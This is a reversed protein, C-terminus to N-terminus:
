ARTTSSNRPRTSAPRQRAPPATVPAGVDRARGDPGATPRHHDRLVRMAGALAALREPGLPELVYRRLGEAHLALAADAVRRGEDTLAAFVVRRDTPCPRREVLGAAVLRDALRTFGGSSFAVERALRTTALMGDPSRALRFLVEAAPASLDFAAALERELRRGAAATAELVLGWSTVLEDDSISPM